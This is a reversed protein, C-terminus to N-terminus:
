QPRKRLSDRWDGRYGFDPAAVLKECYWAGRAVDLTPVGKLWFARPPGGELKTEMVDIAWGDAWEPAQRWDVGSWEFVRCRLEKRECLAQKLYLCMDLAEEYADQLADRGNNTTLPEGYQQAGKAVRAALDMMVQPMVQERKM